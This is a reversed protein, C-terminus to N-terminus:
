KPLRVRASSHFYRSGRSSVSRSSSTTKTLLTDIMLSVTIVESDSFAPQPGRRRWPGYRAELAQYADDVRVPWITLIDEWKAETIFDTRGTM